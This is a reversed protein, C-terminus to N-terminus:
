EPQWKGSQKTSLFKEGKGCIVYNINVNGYYLAGMLMTVSVDRAIKNNLVNSMQTENIDWRDCLERVTDIRHVAMYDQVVEKFRIRVMAKDCGNLMGYEADPEKAKGAKEHLMEGEGYLLWMPNIGFKKLLVGADDATIKTTGKERQTIAADTIGMAEAMEAQTIHLVHNRVYQLRRNPM